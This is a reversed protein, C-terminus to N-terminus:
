QLFVVQSGDVSPVLDAIACFQQPPVVVCGLVEVDICTEGVIDVHIAIAVAPSSDSCFAFREITVEITLVVDDAVKDYIHGFGITDAKDCYHVAQGRLAVAAEAVLFCAICFAYENLVNNEVFGAGEASVTIDSENTHCGTPCTM